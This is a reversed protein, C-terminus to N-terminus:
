KEIKFMKGHGPVIYDALDLIKKRSKELENLDTAYPDKTPYNEKWWVDGVVAVVGKDTTVLFSIGDYNHGSTSIIEINKSFKGFKLDTAESDRGEQWQGFFEVVIATEPFMGVNRYHDIHSHTVFVHTIDKIELGENKLEDILVQQSPMEGPDVIATIGEDKILSITPSTTLEKGAKKCDANIWGEHIIKVEAM